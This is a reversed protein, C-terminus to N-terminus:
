RFYMQQLCYQLARPIYFLNVSFNLTSQNNSNKLLLALLPFPNNLYVLIM